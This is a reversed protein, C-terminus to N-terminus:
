SVLGGAIIERMIETAGGRLTFGPAQAQAQRLLTHLRESAGHVAALRRVEDVVDNEFATGVDKAIAAAVAPPAGADIAEAVQFSLRRLAALRSFLRGLEPGPPLEAAARALLPYPSLFREPGSREYSLETMVQQWGQGEEGLLMDDPVFVGDLVVENFHHEGSMSLIPRVTVGESRLDILLQSMGAHRQEGRDATRVLALLYHARHAHSTWVKTGNVEWGGTRRRARTRISALDSGSDPESMGISFYLEGRAMAPLFFERQADTGHRLLSPGVQRDAFWHAAVPAGAALLEEIVTHRVLNSAARGGYRTPWTLGIWGAEGLARSFEPSFGIMWSDCGSEFPTRALFDRIEQRVLSLETM